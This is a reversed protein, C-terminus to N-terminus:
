KSCHKRLIARQLNRLPKSTMREYPPEGSVNMVVATKSNVTYYGVLNSVTPPDNNTAFGRLLWGGQNEQEIEADVTTGQRVNLRAAEAVLTRAEAETILTPKCPPSVLLLALAIVM